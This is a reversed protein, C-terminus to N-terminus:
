ALSLGYCTNLFTRFYKWMETNPTKNLQQEFLKITMSRASNQRMQFFVRKLAVVCVQILIAMLGQKLYSILSHHLASFIAYFSKPPPNM